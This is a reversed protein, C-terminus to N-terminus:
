MCRFILDNLKFRITIVGQYPPFEKFAQDVHEADGNFIFLNLPIKSKGTLCCEIEGQTSVTKAYKIKSNHLNEAYEAIYSWSKYIKQYNCTLKDVISLLRDWEENNLISINQEHTILVVPLLSNLGHKIGFAAYWAGLEIDVKERSTEWLFDYKQGNPAIAGKNLLFQQVSKPVDEYSQYVVFLDPFDPHYGVVGGQGKFPKLKRMETEPLQLPAAGYPTSFAYPMGLYTIGRKKLFSIADKGVEGFHATLVKSWQIGWKEANEDLRKFFEALKEKGYERGQSHDTPSKPEWFIQKIWTFAHFSFEAMGADYLQKIVQAEKEGINETFLSVHPIFGHKHLIKVWEFHNPAGSCDDIRITVFPPMALMVFPKRAAWVISRWFIDDLGGGHGFYENLWIRPSVAFLVVRGKEFEETVLAPLGSSNAVSMLLSFDKEINVINCVEVPKNFRIFELDKNNTIFHRNNRVRVMWTNLHPMHTGVESTWLGFADKFYNNYSHLDGDFCVLGVGSKVAELIFIVDNKSLRRGFHEQCLIIVSCSNLTEASLNDKALDIINYPIGFYDIASWLIEDLQDFEEKQSSDVLCLASINKENM